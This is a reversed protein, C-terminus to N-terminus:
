LGVNGSARDERNQSSRLYNDVADGRGWGGDDKIQARSVGNRAAQTAFGARLSHAAFDHLGVANARDRVVTRIVQGTIGNGQVSGWRNVQRFVRGSRIGALDLWAQLATVPCTSVNKGHNLYKTHGRGEQDAKSWSVFIDVGDPVFALHAVEVRALESRRFGGAFGVLLIAKDRADKLRGAHDENVHLASVIRALSDALLPPVRDPLVGRQQRAYGKMRQRLEKDGTHPEHGEREHKWKIAAIAQGVSSISAERTKLHALYGRLTTASAPLTVQRTDACWDVFLAWQREYAVVTAPATAARELDADVDALHAAYEVSASPVLPADGPEIPSLTM